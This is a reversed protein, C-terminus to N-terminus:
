EVDGYRVWEVNGLEWGVLQEEDPAECKVWERNNVQCWRYHICWQRKRGTGWYCMVGAGFLAALKPYVKIKDDNHNNSMRGDIGLEVCWNKATDTSVDYKKGLDAYTLKNVRDQRLEDDTPRKICIQVHWYRGKANFQKNCIPCTFTKV